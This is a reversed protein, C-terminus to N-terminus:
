CLRCDEGHGCAGDDGGSDTPEAPAGSPDGSFDPIGKDEPSGFTLTPLGEEKEEEETPLSLLNEVGSTDVVKELFEPEELLMSIKVDACEPSALDVDINDPVIRVVPRDLATGSRLVRGIRGDSLVVFRGPPYLGLARTFASLVGPDFAGPDSYLIRFARAPSYPAKYPRRATLAEFVDCVQILSTSRSQKFWSRRHPYGRGDFRMHHGWAAGLACGSVDASDLLIETGLEPHKAIIRREDHDLREPKYLIEDPIRGKGVDHMLAAAGLEIIVERPAGLFDAVYTALLAVRLSHQVTFVDYEPREGLQFLDSFGSRSAEHIQESATRAESMEIAEGRAAGAMAEEVVGAVDRKVPEAKELDFGAATFVKEASHGLPLSWSVDDHPGLLGISTVANGIMEMRADELSMGRELVFSVVKAFRSVQGADLGSELVIGGAGATRLFAIASRSQLSASMLPLDRHVFLSDHMEVVIPKGDNELIAGELARILKKSAHEVKYASPGDALAADLTAGLELIVSELRTSTIM